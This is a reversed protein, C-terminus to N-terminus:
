DIKPLKNLEKDLNCDYIDRKIINGDPHVIMWRVFNDSDGDYDQEIIYGKRKMTEIYHHILIM